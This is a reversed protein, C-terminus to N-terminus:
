SQLHKVISDEQKVSVSTFISLVAALEASNLVNLKRQSLVDALALCHMEQINAALLGKETLKGEKIFGHETLINKIAM